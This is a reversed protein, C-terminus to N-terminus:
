RLCGMLFHIPYIALSRDPSLVGPAKTNNHQDFTIMGWEWGFSRVIQQGWLSGLAFPADEPDVIKKPPRNGGQWAYVFADIVTVVAKPDDDLSAGILSAGQRNAGTIGYLTDKALPTETHTTMHQRV